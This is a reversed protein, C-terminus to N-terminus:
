HLSALASRLERRTWCCVCAFTLHRASASARACAGHCACIALPLSASLCLCRHLCPCVSVVVVSATVCRVEQRADQRKCRGRGGRAWPHNRERADDTANGVFVAAPSIDARGRRRNSRVTGRRVYVVCRRSSMSHRRCCAVRFAGGDASAQERWCADASGATSSRGCYLFDKVRTVGGKELEVGRQRQRRRPAVSAPPLLPCATGAEAAARICAYVADRAATIAVVADVFAQWPSKAGGALAPVAATATPRFSVYLQRSRTAVATGGISAAPAAVCLGGTFECASARATAVAISEGTDAHGGPLKTV